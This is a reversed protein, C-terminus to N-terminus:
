RVFEEDFVQLQKLMSSRYNTIHLSPRTRLKSQLELKVSAM